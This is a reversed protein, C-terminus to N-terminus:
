ASLAAVGDAKLGVVRSVLGVRSALGQPDAKLGVVQSVLGVTKAIPFPSRVGTKACRM